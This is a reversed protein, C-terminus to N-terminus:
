DIKEYSTPDEIDFAVCESLFASREFMDKFKEDIFELEGDKKVEAIRFDFAMEGADSYSKEYKVFISNRQPIYTLIEIDTISGYGSKNFEELNTLLRRLGLLQKTNIKPKM